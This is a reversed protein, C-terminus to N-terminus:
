YFINSRRINYHARLTGLYKHKYQSLIGETKIANINKDVIDESGDITEEM